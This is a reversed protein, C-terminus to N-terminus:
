HRRHAKRVFTGRTRVNKPGKQSFSYLMGLALGTIGLVAYETFQRTRDSNQIKSESATSRSKDSKKSIQPKEPLESAETTELDDTDIPSSTTTLPIRCPGSVANSWLEKVKRWENNRTLLSTYCVCSQGSSEGVVVYHNDNKTIFWASDDIPESMHGPIKLKSEKKGKNSIFTSFTSFVEMSEVDLPLIGTLEGAKEPILLKIDRCIEDFTQKRGRCKDMLCAANELPRVVFTKDLTQDLVHVFSNEKKETDISFSSVKFTSEWPLAGRTEDESSIRSKVYEPWNDVVFNRWWKQGSEKKETSKSGCGSLFIFIKGEIDFELIFHGDPLKKLIGQMTTIRDPIELYFNSPGEGVNRSKLSQLNDVKVSISQDLFHCDLNDEDDVHKIADWIESYGSSIMRLSKDKGYRELSLCSLFKFLKKQPTLLTRGTISM